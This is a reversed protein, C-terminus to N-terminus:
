PQSRVNHRCGPVLSPTVHHKGCTPCHFAPGAGCSPSCVRPSTVDMIPAADTTKAVAGRRDAKHKELADLVVVVQGRWFSRLDSDREWEVRAAAEIVDLDAAQAAFLAFAAANIASASPTM